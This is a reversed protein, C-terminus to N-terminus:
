FRGARDCFELRAASSRASSKGSPMVDARVRAKKRKKMLSKEVPM